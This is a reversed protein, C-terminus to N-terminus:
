KMAAEYADRSKQLVEAPAEIYGVDDVFTNVNDLYYKVFAAVAPKRLSQKSPYIFLPRSLPTYTGGAITLISPTVCGTGGDVPVLKLKGANEEYYAFGFYGLANKDGAVGTVLANDDESQTYDARSQKAKGNIVETRTFLKDVETVRYVM